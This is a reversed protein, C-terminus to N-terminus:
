DNSKTKFTLLPVTIERMTSLEEAISGRILHAFGTRGHTLMAILDIGHLNCLEWIGEEVTYHNHFVLELNVSPYVGALVTFQEQAFKTTAFNERTNIMGIIIKADFLKATEVVIHFQDNIDDQFDTAFLIKKIPREMYSEPVSIVPFPAHRITRETNTGVLGGHMLGTAGKTGMIIADYQYDSKLDEYFRWAPKDHLLQRHVELGSAFDKEAFAHFEKIIEERLESNAQSDVQYTISGSGSAVSYYPREYMHVLHIKAQNIRAIQCAFRFAILSTPSFDVPCVLSQFKM